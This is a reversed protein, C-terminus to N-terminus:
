RRAEKRGSRATLVVRYAAWTCAACLFVWLFQYWIFFPFGAFTPEVRAFSGVWLLAVVPIALLIAALTLLGKNAPPSADARNEVYNV